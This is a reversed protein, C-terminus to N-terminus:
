RVPTPFATPTVWRDQAFSFLYQEGDRVVELADDDDLGALDAFWAATVRGTRGGAFPGNPESWRGAGVDYGARWTETVYDFAWRMRDCLVSLVEHGDAGRRLWAADVHDCAREAFPAHSGSWRTGLDMSPQWGDATRRYIRRDRIVWLTATSPQLWAADVPETSAAFPGAGAGWDTTTLDVPVEWRGPWYLHPYRYVYRHLHTGTVVSLTHADANAETFIADAAAPAGAEPRPDFYASSHRQAVTYEAFLPDPAVPPLLDAARLDCIVGWWVDEPTGTYGPGLDASSCHVGQWPDIRTASDFWTDPAIPLGGITLALRADVDAPCTAIEWRGSDDVFADGLFTRTSQAWLRVLFGAPATGSVTTAARATADISFPRPSGAFMARYNAESGTVTAPVTAPIPDECGESGTLVMTTDWFRRGDRELPHAGRHPVMAALLRHSRCTADEPLPFFDVLELGLLRGPPPLEEAHILFQYFANADVRTLALVRADDAVGDSLDVLRVYTGDPAQGAMATLPTFAPADIRYHPGAPTDLPPEAGCTAADETLPTATRWHHLVNWARRPTEGPAAGISYRYGQGLQLYRGDGWCLRYSDERVACTFGDGVAVSLAAGGLDVTEPDTVPTDQHGLGLSGNSNDGWCHLGGDGGRACAQGHGMAIAVMAALGMNRPAIAGDDDPQWCIVRGDELLACAAGDRGGVLQKVPGPVPFSVPDPGYGRGWCAVQSETAGTEPRLAACAHREGVGLAVAAGGLAIGNDEPPEDSRDGYVGDVEIPGLCSDQQRGWCAVKGDALRACLHDTGAGLEIVPQSMATTTRTSFTSTSTAASGWPWRGLRESGWCSIEGDILMCTFWSGLAMSTISGSSLVMDPIEALEVQEVHQGLRGFSLGPGTQGWCRVHTGGERIACSHTPGSYVREFGPGPDPTPGADSVVPRGADPAAPADALPAADVAMGADITAPPAGSACGCGSLALVGLLAPVVSLAPVLGVVVFWSGRKSKGM